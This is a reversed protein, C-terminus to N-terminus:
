IHGRAHPGGLTVEVGKVTAGVLPAIYKRTMDADNWLESM